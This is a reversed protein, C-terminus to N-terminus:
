FWVVLYANKSINVKYGGVQDKFVKGQLLDAIHPNNKYYTTNPELIDRRLGIVPVLDIDVVADQGDELHLTMAPGSKTM